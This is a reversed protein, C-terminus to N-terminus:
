QSFYCRSEDYYKQLEHVYVIKNETLATYLELIMKHEAKVPQNPDAVWTNFMAKQILKQKAEKTPAPTPAPTSARASRIPTEHFNIAATEESDAAEVEAFEVEGPQNKM